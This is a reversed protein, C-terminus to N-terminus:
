KQSMRYDFKEPVVPAEGECKKLEIWLETISLEGERIFELSFQPDNIIKECEEYKGTKLYAKAQYFQFLGYQMIRDDCTALFQLIVSYREMKNLLSVYEKVLSFQNPSLENAKKLMNLAQEFLGLKEYIVSAIYFAISNKEIKIAKEILYKADELRDMVVYAAALESLTQPNQSDEGCVARELMLVWEKQIMWNELGSMGFKGTEMLQMWPKQEATIEGFDLHESMTTKGERHKRETELAGWGSGKLIVKEAPKKATIRAAQYIQNLTEKPLLSELRINIENKAQQWEGHIKEKDAQIAGYTETWEWATRPPMPLCEYQTRALGAQIEVYSDECNEKTLVKQWNRSGTGQGWVFLKRGQLRDTSAQILGYGDEDIYGIYKRSNKHVKWFYDKANMTNVPYTIDVGDRFPIPMVKKEMYSEDADVIVRSKPSEKVAINSWWYMPVVESNPNAIRVHMLLLKSNEPLWFDIQYFINRIREYEYFRLVSDGADNKLYATFMNACTFPGHGVFGCNWEAGGSFWANRVALNSPRIVKNTYLLDKKSIKDYLSWLRGGYNPLFEARLYDNELVATLLKEKKLTRRYRDQNKYPYASKLFGYGIFLEEDEGYDLESRQQGNQMVGLSPLENEKGVEAIEYEKDIFTLSM